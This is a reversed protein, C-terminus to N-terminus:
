ARDRLVEQGGRAGFRRGSAPVHPPGPVDWVVDDTVAEVLADIDGRKFAAYMGRVREVNENMLGEKIDHYNGMCISFTYSGWRNSGCQAWHHISEPIKRAMPPPRGAADEGQDDRRGVDGTREVDAVHQLVGLDIDGDAPVAHQAVVGQPQRAGVM